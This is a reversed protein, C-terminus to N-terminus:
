GSTAFAQPQDGVAVRRPSQLTGDGNGLLVSVDDDGRNATIVDPKGDRNVDVVGLASIDSAMLDFRLQPQFGGDGTGLLVRADGSRDSTLVLDLRTDGNLDALAALMEAAGLQTFQPLQFIGAGIGLLVSVDNIGENITVIDLHADGNLDAVAVWTPRNNPVLPYPQITFTGDGVGLLVWVVEANIGDSVSVVDLITDQNLDAVVLDAAPLIAPPALFIGNGLGPLVSIDDSSTNATIIDLKGDGSVDAIAMGNASGSVPFTLPRVFLPPTVFTGNGVGPLYVVGTAGFAIVLDLVTNGDIDALALSSPNDLGFLDYTQPAAFRGDGMGLLVAADAFQQNDTILDLAGDGNLDAVLVSRPRRGAAYHQPAQFTGDGNGLLVSIDEPFDNTTVLDLAGDGNLDGVAMAMPERDLTFRQEPQFAGDGIGLLVSIHSLSSNGSVRNATALDPIDDGNFDALLMAVPSRGTLFRREPQFSGDGVGLLVSVDSLGQIELSDDNPFRNATVIDPIGDRNLDDIAVSGPKFGVAFRMQPRFTGNGVGLLVSVDGDQSPSIAFENPTVLDLQGDRNLDSVAIAQPQSGTLFKPYPYLWANMPVPTQQGIHGEQDPFATAPLHAHRALDGHVHVAHLNIVQSYVHTILLIYVCLALVIQRSMM